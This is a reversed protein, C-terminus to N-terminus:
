RRFFRTVANAREIWEEGNRLEQDLRAMTKALDPGDDLWVNQTLRLVRALGISRGAGGLNACSVGSAELAWGGARARRASRALSAVMDFREALLISSWAARHDEMADFRSMLVDFLRDRVIQTRDVKTQTALMSQDIAADLQAEIHMKTISALACDALSVEAHACIDSLTVQDWPTQAALILAADAFNTLVEPNPNM